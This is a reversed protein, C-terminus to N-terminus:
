SEQIHHKKNNTVKGDKGEERSKCHWTIHTLKQGQNNDIYNNYDIASKFSLLM